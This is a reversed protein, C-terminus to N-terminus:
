MYRPIVVERIWKHIDSENRRQNSFLCRTALANIGEVEEGLAALTLLDAQRKYQDKFRVKLMHDVKEAPTGKPDKSKLSMADLYAIDKEAALEFLIAAKLNMKFKNM